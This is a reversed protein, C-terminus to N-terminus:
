GTRFDQLEGHRAPDVPVSELATVEALEPGQQLWAALEDLAAPDGTALVEVRGDPLNRAHGRLGLRSAVRATSARFFVGQVKGAVLFLRGAQARMHSGTATVAPEHLAAQSRNAAAHSAAKWCPM